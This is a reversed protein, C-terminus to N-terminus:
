NVEKHVITGIRSPHFQYNSDEFGLWISMWIFLAKGRVDDMPVFGWFRSDYSGDRNDGMVFYQNEPVTVPGFNDKQDFLNGPEIQILAEQEGLKEHYFHYKGEKKVFTREIAVGNIYLDKNKLEVVDGPVGIVRKIYYLSRDGPFKFVIVEGRKPGENKYLYIPKDQIWDVFPVKIGYAMKNVFIHDGVFLTPIMSGSPIKFAEIVSSRIALVLLLTWFLSLAKQSLTQKKKEKKM